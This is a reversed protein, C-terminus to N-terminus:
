IKLRYGYYGLIYAEVDFQASPPNCPRGNGADERGAEHAEHNSAFATVSPQPFHVPNQRHRVM